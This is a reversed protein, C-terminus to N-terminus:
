RLPVAPGYRLRLEEKVDDSMRGYVYYPGGSAVAGVVRTQPIAQWRLGRAASSTRDFQAGPTSADGLFIMSRVGRKRLADFEPPQPRPGLALHPGILEVSGRELPLTFLSPPLAPRNSRYSQLFGEAWPSRGTSPSLFAHVVFPKPLRRVTKVIELVKAPDYTGQRIPILRFPMKYEELIKKEQRIWIADDPDSPDLLAVVEKVPSDLIFSFFEVETPYPTLYGDDGLRYVEGRELRKMDAITRNKRTRKTPLSATKVQPQHGLLRQVIRIRDRGLYCHIYYKSDPKKALEYIANLSETNGSVWPLMPASVLSVGNREAAEKEKALLHPEFPVVAPHLLSIITYGQDRLERMKPEDPYPGYIFRDVRVEGGMEQRLHQPQMWLWVAGGALSLALLPIATRYTPSVADILSRLLIFAIAASVLVLLLIIVLVGGRELAAPWNRARCLNVFWRVPGLLVLTGATFGVLLWLGFFNATHFLARARTTM